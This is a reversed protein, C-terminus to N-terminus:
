SLVSIATEAYRQIGVLTSRVYRRLMGEYDQYTKDRVRPRVATQLWRELYENLTIKAGALDRGLDRERLRRTLYAQAERMPGTFPGITINVNTLKRIADLIFEFSGDAIAAHSSKGLKALWLPKRRPECSLCVRRVSRPGCHVSEDTLRLVSTQDATLLASSALSGVCWEDGRVHQQLRRV